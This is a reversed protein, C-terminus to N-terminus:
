NSKKKDITPIRGELSTTVFADFNLALHRRLDGVLGEDPHETYTEIRGTVAELAAAIAQERHDRLSGIIQRQVASLPAVAGM